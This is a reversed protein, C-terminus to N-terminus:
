GRKGARFLDRLKEWVAKAVSATEEPIPHRTYRAEQFADTLTSVDLDEDPLLRHLIASYEKPTQSAGRPLGSDGGRRILALYYFMVRERPPLRNPRILSWPTPTSGRFQPRVREWGAAAMETVTRTAGRLWEMFSNLGEMLWRLGPIRRLRELLEKNHRFYQVLAYGCVLLFIGWFLLSKLVESIPLTAIPNVAEAGTPPQLIDQFPNTFPEAQGRQRALFNILLLIPLMLLFFILNLIGFLFSFMIQALTLLSLSYNTPLLLILLALVALFILSYRLWGLAMPRTVPIRQWIWSARLVAFQGQSLLLFALFFYILVNIAGVEVPPLEGWIAKLDVRSMVTLVVMVAGLFFIQGALSRRIERRSTFFQPESGPRLLDTDGVLEYIQGAFSGSIAWVVMMVTWVGGFEGGFFSLPFDEQWLSLSQWLTEDRIYVLFVKLALTLLIVESVRYAIRRSSVISFHRVREESFVAELAIFLCIWLLFNGEWTPYLRSGFETLSIGLCVMMGAITASAAATAVLESWRFAEQQQKEFM